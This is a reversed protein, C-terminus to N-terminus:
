DDGPLGPTRTEAYYGSLNLDSGFGFTGDVGYTENSGEHARSSSRGAFLVGINSRQFIDRRLRLVTFTTAEVGLADMEATRIALAGVDFSRSWTDRECVPRVSPM